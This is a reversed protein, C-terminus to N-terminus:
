KEKEQKRNRYETEINCKSDVDPQIKRLFEITLSGLMESKEQDELKELKKKHKIYLHSELNKKLEEKVLSRFHDYFNFYIKTLVDKEIESIIKNIELFRKMRFEYFTRIDDGHFERTIAEKYESDRVLRTVFRYVSHEETHVVFLNPNARSPLLYPRKDKIGKLLFTSMYADFGKAKMPIGKDPFVNYYMTAAGGHIQVQPTEIKKLIERFKRSSSILGFGNVDSSSVSYIGSTFKLNQDRQLEKINAYIASENHPIFTVDDDHFHIFRQLEPNIKKLESEQERLVDYSINSPLKKSEEHNGEVEIITASINQNEKKKLFQLIQDVSDDATDNICFIIEYVTDTPMKNLDCILSKINYIIRHGNNKTSYFVSVLNSKGVFANKGTGHSYFSYPVKKEGKKDKFKYIKKNSRNPVLEALPIKGERKRPHKRLKIEYQIDNKIQNYIKTLSQFAFESTLIKSTENYSKDLIDKIQNDIKSVLDKM